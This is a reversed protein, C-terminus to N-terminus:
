AREFGGELPRNPILLVTGPEVTRPDTVSNREAILRWMRWDEFYRHALGSLTEGEVFVHEALFTDSLPVSQGFREYPSVSRM